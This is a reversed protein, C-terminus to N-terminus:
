PYCHWWWRSWLEIPCLAWWLDTRLLRITGPRINELPKLKKLRQLYCRTALESTWWDSSKQLRSCSAFSMAVHQQVYKKLAQREIDKVQINSWCCSAFMQHSPLNITRFTWLQQALIRLQLLRSADVATLSHSQLHLAFRSSIVHQSMACHRVLCLNHSLHECFYTDMWCFGFDLTANGQMSKRQMQM